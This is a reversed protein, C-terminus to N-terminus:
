RPAYQPAYQPVYQPQSPIQGAMMLYATAWLVSVLPTAFLVGIGLALCGLMIIGMSVLWMLVTTGRNGETITSALGYSDGISAKEDVLLYYFPWFWIALLIGPVICLMFGVLLVIGAILNGLFVSLFRPGGGFLDGISVPMGRAAKLAIQAQGIGLFIQLLQQLLNGIIAVAIVGEPANNQALAEQLIAQPIAIAYTAVVVIVTVVVLVGLNAQWVRWAHSMIPDLPVVVNTIPLNPGAFTTPVYAYASSAYPNTSAEGFPSGPPKPPPATGLGAFPNSPPPPM